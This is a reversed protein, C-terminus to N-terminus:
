LCDITLVDTFMKNRAMGKNNAMAYLLSLAFLAVYDNETCDLANYVTELFPKESNGDTPTVALRQKEEDTINTNDEVLNDSSSCEGEEQQEEVVSKRRENEYSQLLVDVGKEFVSRDTKLIIWALTQVLPAHSIILFVQSLLFLAVM